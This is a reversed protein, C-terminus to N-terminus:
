PRAPGSAPATAPVAAQGGRYKALATALRRWDIPKTLYENAGLAVARERDEALRVLDCRRGLDLRRVLDDHGTGTM